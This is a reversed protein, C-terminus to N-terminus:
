STKTAGFHKPEPPHAELLVCDFQHLCIPSCRAATTRRLWAEARHWYRALKLALSNNQTLCSTHQMENSWVEFSMLSRCRWLDNCLRARFPQCQQPTKSVYHGQKRKSLWFKTRRWFRLSIVSFLIICHHWSPLRQREVLILHGSSSHFATSLAAFDLAGFTWWWWEWTLKWYIWDVVLSKNSPTLNNRVRWRMVSIVLAATRHWM